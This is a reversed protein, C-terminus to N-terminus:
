VDMSEIINKLRLIELDKKSLLNGMQSIIEDKEECESTKISLAERVSKIGEEHYYMLDEITNQEKMLSKPVAKTIMTLLEKTKQKDDAFYYKIMVKLSLYLNRLHHIDIKEITTFFDVCKELYDEAYPKKAFAICHTWEVFDYESMKEITYDIQKIRNLTKYLRIKDFVRYLLRLPHGSILVTEEDVGPNHSTAVVNFSPKGFTIVVSVNYDFIDVKKSDKLRDSEFEINATSERTVEDGDPFVSILQDLYLNKGNLTFLYPIELDKFKGPVKLVEHNTKPFLIFNTISVFNHPQMNIPENLMRDVERNVTKMNYLSNHKFHKNRSIKSVM